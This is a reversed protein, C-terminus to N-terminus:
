PPRSIPTPFNRDVALPFATASPSVSPKMLTTASLVVPSSSPTCMTPGSAVASIWSNATPRVSRARSAPAGLGCGGRRGRGRDVLERPSPGELGRQLLDDVGDVGVGREGLRGELRREGGGAMGDGELSREGAGRWGGPAGGPAGGGGGGWGIWM